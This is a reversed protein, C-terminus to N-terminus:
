ILFEELTSWPFHAGMGHCSRRCSLSFAGGHEEMCTLALYPYGHYLLAGLTSDGVWFEGEEEWGTASDTTLSFSLPIPSVLPVMATASRDGSAASGHTFRLTTAGLYPSIEGSHAGLGLTM